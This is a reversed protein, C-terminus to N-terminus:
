NTTVTFGKSILSAKATSGSFGTVDDPSANTGSLNIVRSTFGSTSINDLDFLIHNVDSTTMGNNELRINCSNQDTINFLPTFDIYDLNCSYAHYSAFTSSNTGHTIGTLNPNTYVRFNVGNSFSAGSVDLTGTLNSSYMYFVTFPGSSPPLSINTLNTNTHVYFQGNISLM